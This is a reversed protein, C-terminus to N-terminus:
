RCIFFIMLKELISINPLDNIYYNFIKAGLNSGQVISIKHNDVTKSKATGWKTSQKRNAYYSDIWKTVGDSKTYYKIKDQLLGNTKVCDFAKKIDLTIMVVYNKKQTEMEIYNKILICPHVTSHKSRFGFQNSDIVKNFDSQENLQNLFSKEYAKSFPSLQAIPRWNCRPRACCQRECCQNGFLVTKLQNLLGGMTSNETMKVMVLM